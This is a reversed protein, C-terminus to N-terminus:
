PLPACTRVLYRCNKEELNPTIRPKDSPTYAMGGSPLAAGTYPRQMMYMDVHVGHSYQKDPSSPPRGSYSGSCWSIHWPTCLVTLAATCLYPRPIMIM